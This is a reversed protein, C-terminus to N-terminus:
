IIVKAVKSAYSRLDNEAAEVTQHPGFQQKGIMSWALGYYGDDGSRISFTLDEDLARSFRHGLRKVVPLNLANVEM